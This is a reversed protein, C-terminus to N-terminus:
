VIKVIYTHTLTGCRETVTWEISNVQEEVFKFLHEYPPPHYWGSGRGYNCMYDRIPQFIKAADNTVSVIRGNRPEGHAPECFAPEGHTLQAMWYDTIGRPMPDCRIGGEWYENFYFRLLEPKHDMIVSRHDFEGRNADDDYLFIYRDMWWWHGPNRPYPHQGPNMDPHPDDYMENIMTYMKASLDVYDLM